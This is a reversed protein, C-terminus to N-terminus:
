SEHERRAKGSLFFKKAKLRHVFDALAIASWFAGPLLEKMPDDRIGDQKLSVITEFDYEMIRDM